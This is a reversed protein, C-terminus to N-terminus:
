RKFQIRETAEDELDLKLDKNNLKQTHTYILNGVLKHTLTHRQEDRPLQTSLPDHPYGEPFVLM